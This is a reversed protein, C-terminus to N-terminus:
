NALIMGVSVRFTREVGCSWGVGWDVVTALGSASDMVIMYDDMSTAVGFRFRVRILGSWNTPRWYTVGSDTITSYASPIYWSGAVNATKAVDTIALRVSSATTLGSASISLEIEDVGTPPDPLGAVPHYNTPWLTPGLPNATLHLPRWGWKFGVGGQWSDLGPQGVTNGDVIGGVFASTDAWSSGGGGTGPENGSRGGAGGGYYGGGGGGGESVGLGGVSGVGPNGSGPGLNPDDQGGAGPALLTGGRGGQATWPNATPEDGDGGAAIGSGGSGADYRPTLITKATGGGGGGALAIRSGDLLLETGAGGGAGRTGGGNGGAATGGGPDGGLGDEGPPSGGYGPQICNHGREGPYITFTSGPADILTGHVWGGPGSQGAVSDPWRGGPAGHVWVQMTGPTVRPDWQFEFSQGVSEWNQILAGSGVTAGVAVTTGCLGPSCGVGDTWDPAPAFTGQVLRIDGMILSDGASSGISLTGGRLAPFGASSDSAVSSTLGDLYLSATDTPDDHVWGVLHFNHDVAVSGVLVSSGRTAVVQGTSYDYTVTWNPGTALTTQGTVPGAPPVAFYFCFGFSDGWRFNPLEVTSVGSLLHYSM